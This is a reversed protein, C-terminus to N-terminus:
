TYSSFSTFTSASTMPCSASSASGASGVSALANGDALTEMELSDELIEDLVYLELEPM